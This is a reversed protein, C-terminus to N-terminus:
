NQHITVKMFRNKATEQGSFFLMKNSFMGINFPQFIIEHEKVTSLTITTKLGENNFGSVEFSANKYDWLANVKRDIRNYFIDLKDKNVCTAYSGYMSQEFTTFSLKDIKEKWIINGNKDFSLVSIDKYHYCDLWITGQPGAPMKEKSIDFHEALFWFGGDERMKIEVNYLGNEFEEKAMHLEKTKTVEKEDLGCLMYNLDYEFNEKKQITNKQPNIEFYSTGIISTQGKNSHLGVCILKDNYPEFALYRIKREDFSLIHSKISKGNNTICVMHGTYDPSQKLYKSTFGLERLLGHRLDWVDQLDEKSDYVDIYAFVNGNNDMKFEKFLYAGNGLDFDLSQDSWITNFEKDFVAIGNSVISQDKSILQYTILLKSSDPSFRYKFFINQISKSDSYSVQILEKKDNEITLDNKNLTNVSLINKSLDETSNISFVHLTNSFYIVEDFESGENLSIEKYNSVELNPKILAMYRKKYKAPPAFVVKGEYYPPIYAYMIGNENGRPWVQGIPMETSMKLKTIESLSVEYSNGSTQSYAEPISMLMLAVILLLMQKM